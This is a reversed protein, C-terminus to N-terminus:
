VVATGTTMASVGYCRSDLLAAVQSSIEINSTHSWRPQFVLIETSITFTKVLSIDLYDLLPDFRHRYIEEGHNITDACWSASERYAGCASCRCDLMRMEEMKTELLILPQYTTTSWYSYVASDM